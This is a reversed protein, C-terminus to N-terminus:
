SKCSASIETLRVEENWGINGDHKRYLFVVHRMAAISSGGTITLIRLRRPRGVQAGGRERSTSDVQELGDSLRIGGALALRRRRESQTRGLAARLFGERAERASEP